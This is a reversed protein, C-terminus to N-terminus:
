KRLSHTDADDPQGRKWRQDDGRAQTNTKAPQAYRRRGATKMEMASWRRASAHKNECATRIQRAGAKREM